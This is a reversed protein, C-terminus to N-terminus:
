LVDEPDDYDGAYNQRGRKNIMVSIGTTREGRQGLLCPDSLLVYCESLQLTMMSKPVTPLSTKSYSSCKYVPM